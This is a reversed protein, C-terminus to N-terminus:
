FLSLPAGSLEYTDYRSRAFNPWTVTTSQKKVNSTGKAVWSLPCVFHHFRLKVLVWSSVFGSTIM